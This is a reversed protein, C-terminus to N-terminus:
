HLHRPYVQLLPRLCRYRLIPVASFPVFAVPKNYQLLINTILKLGFNKLLGVSERIPQLGCCRLQVFKRYFYFAFAWKQYM